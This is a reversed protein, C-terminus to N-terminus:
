RENDQLKHSHTDLTIGAAPCLPAPRPAPHPLPPDPALSAAGSTLSQENASLNAAVGRVVSSSVAPPPTLTLARTITFAHATKEGGCGGGCSLRRDM